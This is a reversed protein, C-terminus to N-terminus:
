ASTSRSPHRATSSSAPPSPWRSRCWPLWGSAAPSAAARAAGASRPRPPALPYCPPPWAHPFPGRVGVRASAPRHTIRYDGEEAAATRPSIMRLPGREAGACDASGGSDSFRASAGL